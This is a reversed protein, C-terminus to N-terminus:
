EVQGGAATGPGPLVLLRDAFVGLLYVTTSYAPIIFSVAMAGLSLLPLSLYRRKMVRIEMGTMEHSDLEHRRAYAWLWYNCLGIALLNIIFVLNATQFDIYNGIFETSFPLFVVFVLSFLNMWLFTDDVSEIYSLQRHNITWFRALLWFSLGFAFFEPMTALLAQNLETNTHFVASAPVDITLVLLTMAFGYFTDTVAKLRDSNM